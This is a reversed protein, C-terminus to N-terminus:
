EKLWHKRIDSIIAMVSACEESSFLPTETLGERLCRNAELAEYALGQSNVFNFDGSKLGTEAESLPLPFDFVEEPERHDVAALSLSLSLSANM